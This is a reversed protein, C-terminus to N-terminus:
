CLEQFTNTQGTARIRITQEHAGIGELIPGFEMESVVEKNGNTKETNIEPGGKLM